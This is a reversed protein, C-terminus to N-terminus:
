FMNGMIKKYHVVRYYYYAFFLSEFCSSVSLLETGNDHNIVMVIFAALSKLPKQVAPMSRIVSMKESTVYIM